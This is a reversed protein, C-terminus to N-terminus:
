AQGYGRKSESVVTCDLRRAVEATNDTSANDVVIIEQIMSRPLDGIVKPLSVEENFAPIIVSIHPTKQNNKMIVCSVHCM